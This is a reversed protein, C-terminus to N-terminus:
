LRHFIKTRTLKQPTIKPNKVKEAPNLSTRFEERLVWYGGKKEVRPLLRNETVAQSPSEVAAKAKVEREGSAARVGLMHSTKVNPAEPAVLKAGLLQSSSSVSWLQSQLLMAGHM